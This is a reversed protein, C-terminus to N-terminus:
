SSLEAYNSRVTVKWFMHPINSFNNKRFCVIKEWWISTRYKCATYSYTLHEVKQSRVISRWSDFLNWFTVSLSVNLILNLMFLEFNLLHLRWLKSKKELNLVSLYFQGSLYFLHHEITQENSQSLISHVMYVFSNVVFFIWIFIFIIHHCLWQM